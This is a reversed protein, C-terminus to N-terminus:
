QNAIGIGIDTPYSSPQRLPSVPDKITKLILLFLPLGTTNEGVQYMDTVFFLTKRIAAASHRQVQEAPIFAFYLFDMLYYLLQGACAQQYCRVICLALLFHHFNDM